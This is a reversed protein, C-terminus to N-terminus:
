LFMKALKVAFNIVRYVRAKNNDNMIEMDVRTGSNQKEIANQKSRPWWNNERSKYEIESKGQYRTIESTEGNNLGGADLAEKAVHTCDKFGLIYSTEAEEGAAVKMKNDTETDTKIRFARNFRQTTEGNEDKTSTEFGKGDRYSSKFINYESNGFESLTKFTKGITAHGKGSSGGSSSLAGDKSYYTWGDKDNGILVAQHGTLHGKIPNQLLIIIDTPGMGDPDIFRIPNDFAYKYPSHRRMKDALPDIVM